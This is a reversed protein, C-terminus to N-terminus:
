RSLQGQYQTLETKATGAAADLAAGVPKQGAWAATIQAMDSNKVTQMAGSVCGATAPVVPTTTLQNYFLQSSPNAALYAKETPLDATKLNIPVYGTAQSFQEQVQPSTLYAELKWAAVQQAATATRSLYLASGGIVTGSQGAPGSTPYPLAAYDFQPGTKLAGLIGSSMIIMGVKGAQFASIAATGTAGGDVAVGSTYLGSIKTINQKALGQNITIGTAGGGGRGNGPTCFDQGASATLQEIYWDDDQTSFGAIGTKARITKAAAVVEDLTSLPASASIGAKKLIDRNVWLVPTSVNMPVGEQVGNVKYYNLAQPSLDSLNLIGPNAQAMQSAPLIQNTDTLYGLSIDGALVIAPTSKSRIAATYKALLDAYVGEYTATVHIKGNNVANFADIANQLATGNAASLGHWISINTVGKANQLASANPANAPGSSTGSSSCAGLTVLLATGIAATIVKKNM